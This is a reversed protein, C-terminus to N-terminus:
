ATCCFKVDSLVMRMSRHSIRMKRDKVNRGSTVQMLEEADPIQSTSYGYVSERPGGTDAEKM